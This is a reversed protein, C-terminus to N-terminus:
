CPGAEPKCSRRLEEYILVLEEGLRRADFRGIAVARAAAGLKSRLCRDGALRVLRDALESAQGPEFSLGTVGDDILDAAGGGCSVVILRACAMAEAIVLGFPEPQTSAHVVIDLARM